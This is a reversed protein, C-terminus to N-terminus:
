FVTLLKEQAPTLKPKGARDWAERALKAYEASGPKPASGADGKKTRHEQVLRSLLVVFDRQAHSAPAPKSQCVTLPPSSAGYGPPLGVTPLVSSLAKYATPSVCRGNLWALAGAYALAPSEGNATLAKVVASLWESASSYTPYSKGQGGGGGGTNVPEATTPAAATAANAASAASYRSYIFWAGIVGAGVGAWGALSLPGYKKGPKKAGPM